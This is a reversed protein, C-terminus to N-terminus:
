SRAEVRRRQEDSILAAARELHADDLDRIEVSSGITRALIGQLDRPSLDEPSIAGGVDDLGAATRMASAGRSFGHAFTPNAMMSSIVGEIVREIPSGAEIRLDIDVGDGHIQLVFPRRTRGTSKSERKSRRSAM